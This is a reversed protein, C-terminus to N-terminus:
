PLALLALSGLLALGTVVIHREGRALPMATDRVQRPAKGVIFGNMHEREREDHGPALARSGHGGGARRRESFPREMPAFLTRNARPGSSRSCGSRTRRRGLHPLVGRQAPRDSRKRLSLPSPSRWSHYGCRPSDSGVSAGPPAPTYPLRAALSGASHGAFTA